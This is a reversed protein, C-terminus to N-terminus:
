EGLFEILGGRILTNILRTRTKESMEKPKGPEGFPADDDYASDSRMEEVHGDDAAESTYMDNESDLM